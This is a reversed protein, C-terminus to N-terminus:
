ADIAAISWGIAALTEAAVEKATRMDTAVEVDAIDASDLIVDLEEARALHWALGTPDAVHRRRLRSQLVALPARLRCVILPLGITTEYSERAARSECVGALVLRRIGAALYNAVMPKLNSLGIEFGFPDYRPTPWYQRIEDLDIVAHPVGAARLWSGMWDATASKGVGVTGTVLVATASM